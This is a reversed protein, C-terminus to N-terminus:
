GETHISMSYTTCDCQFGDWISIICVPSTKFLEIRKMLKGWDDPFMKTKNYTFSEYMAFESGNYVMTTFNVWEKNDPQSRFHEYRITTNITM